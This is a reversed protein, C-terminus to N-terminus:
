QPVEASSIISTAITTYDTAVCRPSRHRICGRDTFALVVLSTRYSSPRVGWGAPLLRTTHLRACDNVQQGGCQRFPLLFRTRGGREDLRERADRVRAAPLSPAVRQREQETREDERQQTVAIREVRDPLPARLVASQERRLEGGLVEVGRGAREVAPEQWTQRDRVEFGRERDPHAPAQCRRRVLGQGEVALGHPACPCRVRQCRVQERDGCM